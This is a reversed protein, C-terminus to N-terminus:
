HLRINKTCLIAGKMEEFLNYMKENRTDFKYMKENRTM